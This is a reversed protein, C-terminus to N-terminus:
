SDKDQIGQRFPWLWCEHGTCKIVQMKDHGCCEYCFNRIAQKRNVVQGPQRRVKSRKTSEAM